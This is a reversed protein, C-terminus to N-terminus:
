GERHVLLLRSSYEQNNVTQWPETIGHFEKKKSEPQGSYKTVSAFNRRKMGNFPSGPSSMEVSPVYLNDM